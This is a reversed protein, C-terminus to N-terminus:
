PMSGHVALSSAAPSQTEQVSVACSGAGYASDGANAVLALAPLRAILDMCFLSTAATKAELVKESVWGSWWMFWQWFFFMKFATQPHEFQVRVRPKM